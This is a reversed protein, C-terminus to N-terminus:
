QRRAFGTTDPAPRRVTICRIFHGFETVMGSAGTAQRAEGFRDFLSRSRIRPASGAIVPYSIAQHNVRIPEGHQEFLNVVLPAFSGCTIHPCRMSFGRSM